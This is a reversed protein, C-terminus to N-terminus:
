TTETEPARAEPAVTFMPKRSLVLSVEEPKGGCDLHEILHYLATGLEVWLVQARSAKEQLSLGETVRPLMKAAVQAVRWVEDEFLLILTQKAKGSM